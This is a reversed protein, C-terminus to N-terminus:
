NALRLSLLPLLLLPTALTQTHKTPETEIAVKNENKIEKAVINNLALRESETVGCERSEMGM